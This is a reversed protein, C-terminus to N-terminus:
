LKKANLKKILYRTAIKGVLGLGPLGEILVPSKLEVKALEKIFTEKM